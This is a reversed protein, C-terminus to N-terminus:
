EDEFLEKIQLQGLDSIDKARDIALKSPVRNILAQNIRLALMRSDRMKYLYGFKGGDLIEKPGVPCDSSVVTCGCSLAELIAMSFGESISSHLYLTSNKMYNYPNEVNGILKIYEQQKYRNIFGQIKEKDPGEGAILLEYKNHITPPLLSFGRILTLFDKSRLDLRAATFFYSIKIHMNTYQKNELTNRNIRTFNTCVTSRAKDINKSVPLKFFLSRQSECLFILRQCKGLLWWYLRYTKSHMLEM